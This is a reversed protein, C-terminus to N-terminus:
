PVKGFAVCVLWASIVAFLLLSMVNQFIVARGGNAKYVIASTLFVAVLATVSWASAISRLLGSFLAFGVLITSAGVVLCLARVRDRTLAM